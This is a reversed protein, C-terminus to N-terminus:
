VISVYQPGLYTPGLHEVMDDLIFLLFKTRPKTQNEGAYPALRNSLLDQVVGTVLPKHTKMLAGIVEGLDLQLQYENKNEEKLVLL